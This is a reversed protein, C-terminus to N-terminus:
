IIRNATTSFIAVCIHWKCQGAANMRQVRYYRTCIFQVFSSVIRVACGLIRETMFLIRSCVRVSMLLAQGNNIAEALLKTRETWMEKAESFRFFQAETFSFAAAASSWQCHDPADSQRGRMKRVFEVVSKCCGGVTVYHLWQMAQIRTRCLPFRMHTARVRVKHSLNEASYQFADWHTQIEKWRSSDTWFQVHERIHRRFGILCFQHCIWLFDNKWWRVADVCITDCWPRRSPQKIRLDNVTGVKQTRWIDANM